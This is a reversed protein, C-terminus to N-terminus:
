LDQCALQPLKTLQRTQADNLRPKGYGVSSASDWMQLDLYPTGDGDFLYSGESREFCKPPELYHVTDGWSCHKRELQLLEQETM